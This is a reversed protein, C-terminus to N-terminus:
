LRTRRWPWRPPTLGSAKSLAECHPESRDELGPSTWDHLLTMLAHAAPVNPATVLIQWTTQSM